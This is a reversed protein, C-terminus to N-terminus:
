KGDLMKRLYRGTYGYKRAIGDISLHSKEREKQAEAEICKALVTRLSPVYVSKGGLLQLTAVLGEFGAANFIEDYPPLIQAPNNIAAEKLTNHNM